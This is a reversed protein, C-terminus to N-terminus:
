AMPDEEAARFIRLNMRDRLRQLFHPGQLPTGVQQQAAALEALRKTHFFGLMCPLLVSDGILSMTLTAGMLWGFLATPGFSSFTLALMGISMIVTSQMIPPGTQQLAIRTAQAKDGSTALEEQYRVLMHFSGDVAIGLAISGSMMMSIDVPYAIWGLFGFVIAIPALNPLMGIFGANFWKLSIIMVLMISWFAYVFSSWFGVYIDKQAQEILPSIGTLTVPADTLIAQLEELTKQGVGRSNPKLNASIRWYQEGGALFDNDKQRKMARDLLQTLALGSPMESPFMSALSTTHSILPHSAIKAELQRVYDLKAVFPLSALQPNRGFDVTTEITDTNTLDAQIRRVDRLVVSNKPFFELPDIHSHLWAMGFGCLVTAVVGAAVVQRSRVLCWDSFRVFWGSTTAEEIQRRPPCVAIVAPTLVLGVSLAVLSGLTGAWGFQRVPIFESVCLSVSGIATTFTALCCPKVAHHFMVQFRDVHGEANAYYSLLHVCVELTFVMVMVPLADIVFNMEGGCWKLIAVTLQTAFMTLALIMGTLRWDRLQFYLLCLCIALSIFFFKKNSERGGLRNLEDIVVPAGAINVDHGEIQCYKLVDRIATVAGSRDNIGHDSLTVVVGVREGTPSVFLGRLRQDIDTEAVTLARMMSRMRQPTWCHRIGPSREIRGAISEILDDGLSQDLGVLIVEEAGFRLKFDDYERRVESNEPLWAEINNNSPITEAHYHLLPFVALALLLLRSGYKKYFSSLM